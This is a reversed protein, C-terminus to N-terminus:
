SKRVDATNVQAKIPEHCQYNVLEIDEYGIRFIDRQDPNIKLQPLPMPERKMQENMQPLHNVYIHYDGLTHIFTGPVMNVCHAVLHLLLAYSSINFPVGLFMDCSRQYMQLNLRRTPVGRDDFVKSLDGGYREQERVNLYSMNECFWENRETQTLEETHFQFMVHCPPLAIHDVLAPHWASVVMRRDDPNTKLTHLVKAIQDVTLDDHYDGFNRWMSGYTGHGLHGFSEPARRTKILEIWEDKPISYEPGVQKSWHRYADDTWINIDNDVLYQINVSGSLFWLLEHVVGKWFIKKTTLIPFVKECDFQMQAGFLGLTDMGTRNTKRKGQTMANYCLKLYQSDATNM